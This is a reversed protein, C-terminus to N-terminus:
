NLVQGQSDGGNGLQYHQSTEGGTCSGHSNHAVYYLTFFVLFHMAGFYFMMATRGAKTSVIQVTSSLLVREIVTLDKLKKQRELQSFMAVPSMKQEYVNSFELSSVDMSQQMQNGRGAEMGDIHGSYRQSPKNTQSYNQLYRIKEYLNSNDQTLRKKDNEMQSLKEKMAVLSGEMGDLREKYRDRQSTLIALMQGEGSGSSPPRQGSGPASRLAGDDGSSLLAVLSADPASMGPGPGSVGSGSALSKSQAGPTQRNGRHATNELDSELKTVLEQSRQLDARLQKSEELAAKEITSSSEVNSRAEILEGQITRLRAVLMVELTRQQELNIKDVGGVAGSADTLDPYVANDSSTLQSLTTNTVQNMYAPALSLDDTNDDEDEDVNFIVKQLVRLQRKLGAMEEPRPRAALEKRLLAADQGTLALKHKVENLLQESKSREVAMAEEKHILESRLEKLLGQMVEAREESSDDARSVDNVSGNGNRSADTSKPNGRSLLESELEGIRARLREANEAVMTNEVQLSALQTEAQSSVEFLRSQARDAAQQASQTAELSAALRKEAARHHERVEAVTLACAAEVEAVQKAVEENVQDEISDHFVAIQDELRRITIDQNKLQQFEEDYQSLEKQLRDIELQQSSNQSQTRFLSEIVNAPDPGDYLAKYIDLFAAESSKARRSLQDIEAQYAKLVDQVLTVQEDRPKARFSKTVENLHKRGAISKGKTDRIEVVQKDLLVKREELDFKKWFELVNRIDDNRKDKVAAATSSSELDM